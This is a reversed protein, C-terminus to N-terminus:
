ITIKLKSYRGTNKDWRLVNFSKNRQALLAGVVAIVAPDGLAIVSDGREFNYDRLGVRLQSVLDATAYFSASPPMLIKIEGHEGAPSINVSPTMVGTDKDRRNPVQTVFVTATAAAVDNNM